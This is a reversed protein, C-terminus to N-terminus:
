KKIPPQIKQELYVADNVVSVTVKLKEADIRKKLQTRMYNATKGEVELKQLPKGGEIFARLIPDFKSGKRYHRQPMEETNILKFSLSEIKKDKKENSM